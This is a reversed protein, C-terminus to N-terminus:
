IQLFTERLSASLGPLCSKILRSSKLAEKRRELFFTLGKVWFNILVVPIHLLINLQKYLEGCLHTNVVLLEESLCPRWSLCKDTEMHALHIVLCDQINILQFTLHGLLLPSLSARQVSLLVRVLSSDRSDHQSVLEIGVSTRRWRCNLM